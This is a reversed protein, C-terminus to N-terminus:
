NQWSKWARLWLKQTRTVGLPLISDITVRAKKKSKTCVAVVTTGVIDFGTLQVVEGLVEIEEVDKFVDEFCVLWGSIQEDEGYADCTAM